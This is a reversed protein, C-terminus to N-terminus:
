RPTMPTMPPVNNGFFLQPKKMLSTLVLNIGGIKFLHFPIKKHNDSALHTILTALAIVMIREWMAHDEPLLERGAITLASALLLETRHCQILRTSGAFYAVALIIAAQVSPKVSIPVVNKTM